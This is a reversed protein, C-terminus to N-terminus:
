MNAPSDGPFGSFVPQKASTFAFLGLYFNCFLIIALHSIYNSIFLFLLIIFISEYFEKEVSLELLSRFTFKKSSGVDVTGITIWSQRYLIGCCVDRLFKM